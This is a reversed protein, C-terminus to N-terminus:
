TSVNALLPISNKIESSTISPKRVCLIRMDWDMRGTTKRPRGSRKKPLFSENEKYTRIIRSVSAASLKLRKSIDCNKYGEEMLLIVNSKVTKSIEVAKGM